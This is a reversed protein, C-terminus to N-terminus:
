RHGPLYDIFCRLVVVPTEPPNNLCLEVALPAGDLLDGGRLACVGGGGESGEESMESSWTLVESQTAMEHHLELEPRKYEM